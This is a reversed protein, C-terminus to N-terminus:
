QIARRIAAIDRKMTGPAAAIFREGYVRAEDRQGAAALNITLNYLANLETPDQTVASKWADIAEGKRNSGALVVGLATYAGALTKDLEIARRLSAEAAATDGTQLQSTGINEWALGNKPDIELLRKFTKIAAAPQDALQYANGLAVLADPDEGTEGALLAIAKDPQGSEALYQGLKIRVESQTVGNRLADELTAIADAPRGTRWYVLALKRYADETDARRAIVSKYMGIADAPRGQRFADAARTMTQELEILRKPDDRDTYEERVAASAGGIYGLSRLRELTDPTERQPRGPPAVNFTKLVNMMVPTRDSRTAFLNRQEAADTSLNYLEAIPLDILKERGVLVGRLPAWGRALTPTMSEFYSPRDAAGNGGIADRLSSGPLSADTPAGIAQLLTPLLDVHRAPTEVVVGIHRAERVRAGIESVILPVKLVPEYAFVGHTLEGHDGLSEGHDATVVALTTRTQTSLRDFLAGLAADTFSVEALYPDAPFRTKWEGPPDYTVHPDYVHVWVFWKGSQRGIWELASAVVADARRERDDEGSARENASASPTPSSDLRDDYLDFGVGLGFRRDLPFGGIFAGTAFGQAKLRTAATAQTPPLRYGTNDRIGHEYPYRGTLISAHSPLTVVAHAHAFTFRAGHAALRDLNPTVARGGYSGLADARLTDITVLLVNRDANVDIAFAPSRLGWWAGLALIAVLAAGVIAVRARSGASAAPPAPPSGQAGRPGARKKAM